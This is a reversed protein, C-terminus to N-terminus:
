HPPRESSGGEGAEEQSNTDASTAEAAGTEAAAAKAAAEAAALAAHGERPAGIVSALVLVIAGGVLAIDAVNGVFFGAYDLFDVIHGIAFGPDRFLRDGLHSIAGGTMAGLGIVWLWHRTSLSFWVLGVVAFAAVISLIWTYDAAIGFAAGPNYVLRFGFLDGWLPVYERFELESEAWWKSWQDVVIWILAQIGILLPGLFRQM